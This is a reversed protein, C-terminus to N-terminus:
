NTLDKNPHVMLISNRKDKSSKKKKKKEGSPSASINEEQDEETELVLLINDVEILRKIVKDILSETNKLQDESQIKGDAEERQISEGVMGWIPLDDLYLQYWYHNEIAENFISRTKEDLKLTCVKIGKQMTGFHLHYGSNHLEHGELQEGLSHSKRVSDIGHDPKCYPIDYYEYTEQPNHYPGIKNVWLDVHEDIKYTHSDLDAKLQCLLSLLLM